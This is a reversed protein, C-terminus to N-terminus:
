RAAVRWYLGRRGGTHEAVFVPWGAADPSCRYVAYSTELEAGEPWGPPSFRAPISSGPAAPKCSAPIWQTKAPVDFLLSSENSDVSHIERLSTAQAPIWAPLWGRSFAGAARAAEVSPYAAEIIDSSGCGTLALVSAVLLRTSGM